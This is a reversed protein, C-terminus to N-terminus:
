CWYVFGSLSAIMLCLPAAWSLVEHINTQRGVKDPETGGLIGRAEAAFNPDLRAKEAFAALLNGHAVLETLPASTADALLRTDSTATRVEEVNAVVVRYQTNEVVKIKVDSRSTLFLVPRKDDPCERCLHAALDKCNPFVTRDHGFVQRCNFDYWVAIGSLLKQPGHRKKIPLPWGSELQEVEDPPQDCIEAPAKELLQSEEM